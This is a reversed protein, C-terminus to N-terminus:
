IQRRKENLAVMRGSLPADRRSGNKRVKHREQKRERAGTHPRHRVGFVAFRVHSRAKIAMASGIPLRPLRGSPNRCCCDRGNGDAAARRVTASLHPFPRRVPRVPPKRERGSRTFYGSGHAPRCFAIRYVSCGEGLPWERGAAFGRPFAGAIRRHDFGGGGRPCGIRASDPSSPQQGSNRDRLIRSAIRRVPCLAYRRDRVVVINSTDMM